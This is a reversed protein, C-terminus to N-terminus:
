AAEETQSQLNASQSAEAVLVAALDNNWAALQRVRDQLRDNTVTLARAGDLAALLTLRYADREDELELVLATLMEITLECIQNM